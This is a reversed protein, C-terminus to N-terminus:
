LGARGKAWSDTQGLGGQITGDNDDSYGVMLMTIKMMQLLVLFEPVYFLELRRKDKTKQGKGLYRFLTGKKKDEEKLRRAVEPEYAVSYRAQSQSFCIGQM